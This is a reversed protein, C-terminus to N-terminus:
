PDAAYQIKSNSSYKGLMAKTDTNVGAMGCHLGGEIMPRRSAKISKAILHPLVTFCRFM